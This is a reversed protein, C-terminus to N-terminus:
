FKIFYGLNWFGNSVIPLFPGLHLTIRSCAVPETAQSFLFWLIGM